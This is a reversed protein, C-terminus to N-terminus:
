PTPCSDGPDTLSAAAHGVVVQLGGTLTVRLANVAIGDGGATPVQENIVVTGLPLTITTNAAPNAILVGSVRLNTFSSSGTTTVVGSADDTATATATLEDATVLGSLLQVTAVTASATATDLGNVDETGAASTETVGITGLGLLAAATLSNSDSAPTATCTVDSPALPSITVLPITVKAGYAHADFIKEPPAATAPGGISILGVLVAAVITALRGVPTTQKHSM